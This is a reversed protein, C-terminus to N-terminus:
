RGKRKQYLNIGISYPAGDAGNVVVNGGTTFYIVSKGTASPVGSGLAVDVLLRGNEVKIIDAM